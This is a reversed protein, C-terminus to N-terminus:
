AQTEELESIYDPIVLYPLLLRKYNLGFRLRSKIEFFKTNGNKAFHLDMRLPAADVTM